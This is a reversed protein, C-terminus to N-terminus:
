ESIEAVVKAIEDRLRAESLPELQNSIVFFTPTQRIGLTQVDKSDQILVGATQPARIQSQAKGLDLGASQAISAILEPRMRGHSAWQPQSILLAELVPEFLGQMRAAELYRVAVQSAEGHFATYRIVVRVSKGHETLIKKVIPHFARCAECAPDFFEVITVPADKDGIIPSYSRILAENDKVPLLAKESASQQNKFWWSAGTFGVTGLALTSLIFKRRFM